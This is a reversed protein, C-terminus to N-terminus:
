VSFDYPKPIDVFKGGDAWVWVVWECGHPIGWGLWGSVGM